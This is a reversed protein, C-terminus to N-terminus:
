NFTFKYKILEISVGYSCALQEISLNQLYLKDVKNEDILLEAAFKNAEIEFRGRDYFTHDHLFFTKNSAHMKAHGLEHALVMNLHSASIIRTMNIVIYKQRLVKKFIGEPSSPSLYKYKIEIREGTAITYPDRTKYKKVLSQVKKRYDVM